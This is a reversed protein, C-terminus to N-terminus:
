PQASAPAPALLTNLLDALHDGGARLQAEILPLQQEVYAPGLRHSDPYVGASIAIHCSNEAWRAPQAPALVPDPLQMLQELYTANDLGRTRLMGSDWFAHLNSGHGAHQIQMDNGGKDHGYGAHMPQHVDGVFHVVFKLAQLRQQPSAATDALLRGQEEIAAVVCNGDACHEAARYQCNQEEPLGLRALNVYHWRASRRGLDPDHERLRDAWSAIDSLTSHDEVALLSQVQALAAPQLQRQAVDAVLAHGQVGWALAPAATLSSLLGALVPMLFRNM